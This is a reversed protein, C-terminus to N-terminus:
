NNLSSSLLLLRLHKWSGLIVVNAQSYSLFLLVSLIDSTEQQTSRSVAFIIEKRICSLLLFVSSGNVSFTWLLFFVMRQTCIRLCLFTNLSITMFDSGCWPTEGNKEFQAQLYSFQLRDGTMDCQGHTVRLVGILQVLHKCQLGMFSVTYISIFEYHENQFAFTLSFMKQCMM